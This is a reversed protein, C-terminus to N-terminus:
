IYASPKAKHWDSHQQLQHGANLLLAEDFFNGILQLGIPLNHQQGCPLALAPLGALNVAITYIDSLYMTLPDQQKEGLTFATTPTCPGLLFDVQKFADIFDQQILRRIQQAKKYYAEYYGTSLTYTGM